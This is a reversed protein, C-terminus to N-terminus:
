TTGLRVVYRNYVNGRNTVLLTFKTCGFAPELDATTWDTGDVDMHEIGYPGVVAFDLDTDGDGRVLVRSPRCVTLEIEDTGRAEVRYVALDDAVATAVQMATAISAATIAKQLTNRM